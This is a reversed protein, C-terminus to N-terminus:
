FALDSVHDACHRRFLFGCGKCSTHLHEGFEQCPQIIQPDLTAVKGPCLQDDWLGGDRDPKALCKPCQELHADFALVPGMIRERHEAVTDQADSVVNQRNRQERGM